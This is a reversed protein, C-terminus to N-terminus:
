PLKRRVPHILPPCGVEALFESAEKQTDPNGTARFAELILPRDM